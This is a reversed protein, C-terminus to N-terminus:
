LLPAFFRDIADVYESAREPCELQHLPHVGSFRLDQADPLGAVWEAHHPLNWDTDACMVLAPCAVEQMRTRADFRHYAM